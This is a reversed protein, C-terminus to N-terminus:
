IDPTPSPASYAAYKIIFNSASTGNIYVDFGTDDMNSVVPTGDHPNIVEVKNPPAVFYELTVPYSTADEGIFVRGEKYLTSVLAKEVVKSRRELIGATTGINVQLGGVLWDSAFSSDKGPEFLSDVAWWTSTSPPIYCPFSITNYEGTGIITKSALNADNESIVRATATFGVPGKIRLTITVFRGQVFSYDFFFSRIGCNSVNGSSSVRLAKELITDEAQLDETEYSVALIGSSSQYSYVYWNPAFMFTNGDISTSFSNEAGVTRKITLNGNIALNSTGALETIEDNARLFIAGNPTLEMYIEQTASNKFKVSDQNSFDLVINNVETDSVMGTLKQLSDLVIDNGVWRPLWRITTADENTFVGFRKKVDDYFLEGIYVLENESVAGARRAQIRLTM